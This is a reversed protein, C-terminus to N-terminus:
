CPRRASPGYALISTLLSQRNAGAVIDGIASRYKEAYCDDINVYTYGADQTDLQDLGICTLGAPRVLLGLSQM